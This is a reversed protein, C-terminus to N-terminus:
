PVVGFFLMEPFDRSLNLFSPLFVAGIAYEFYPSSFFCVGQYFGVAVGFYATMVQNVREYIHALPLYSIYSIFYFSIEAFFFFFFM